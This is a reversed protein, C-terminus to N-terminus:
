LPFRGELGVIFMLFSHGEPEHLFADIEGVVDIRVDPGGNPAPLEVLYRAYTPSQPDIDVVWKGAFKGILYVGVYSMLRATIWDANEEAADIDEYALLEGLPAIGQASGVAM